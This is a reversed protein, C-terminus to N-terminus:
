VNAFKSETLSADDAADAVDFDTNKYPWARGIAGSREICQTLM